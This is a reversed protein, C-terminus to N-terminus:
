ICTGRFTNRHPITFKTKYQFSKWVHNIICKFKNDITKEVYQAANQLPSIDNPIFVQSADVIVKQTALYKDDRNTMSSMM